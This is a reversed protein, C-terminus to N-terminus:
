LSRSKQTSLNWEKCQAEYAQYKEYKQNLDLWKNKYKEQMKQYDNEIEEESLHAM